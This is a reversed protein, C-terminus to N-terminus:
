KIGFCVQSQAHRGVRAARGNGHRAHGSRGRGPWEPEGHHCAGHLLAEGGARCGESLAPQRSRNKTSTTPDWVPDKPALGVFWRYLLQLGAAGDTTTGLSYLRIIAMAERSRRLRPRFQARPEQTLSYSENDSERGGLYSHLAGAARAM